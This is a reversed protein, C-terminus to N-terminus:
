ILIMLTVGSMAVLTGLIARSSIRERFVWHVLPLSLIPSMAMLTSAIGVRTAQVAVLSLWVGLFPGMFSGGLVAASARGDARLRRITHGAEGRAAAWLWLIVMAVSMRIMTASLAPFDDGLAPKALV